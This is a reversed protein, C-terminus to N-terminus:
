QLPKAGNIIGEILIEFENFPSWEYTPITTNPIDATNVTLITGDSGAFEEAVEINTTWSTYNSQTDGMVHEYVSATGGRPRIEGTELYAKLQPHDSRLGRYLQETAKIAESTYFTIVTLGALHVPITYKDLSHWGQVQRLSLEDNTPIGWDGPQDHTVHCATCGMGQRLLNWTSYKPDNWGGDFSHFKPKPLLIALNKRCEEDEEPCHGSPDIYRIPNNNVFAYRDWAQPDGAGPIISDAQAFRGLSPDYWRANFFYLGFDDVHSYQGTFTYDTLTAGNAYRVEGWPKYRLESEFEGAANTTLSTSGLHDSFLYHLTNGTRMAVRQAGAYYYKTATGGTEEYYNGVFTTTVGNIIAQV